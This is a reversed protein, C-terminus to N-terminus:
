WFYKDTDATDTDSFKLVNNNVNVTSSEDCQAWNICGNFESKVQYFACLFLISDITWDIKVIIYKLYEGINM